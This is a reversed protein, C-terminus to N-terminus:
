ASADAGLGGFEAMVFVKRVVVGDASGGFRQIRMRRRWYMAYVHDLKRIPKDTSRNNGLVIIYLAIIM